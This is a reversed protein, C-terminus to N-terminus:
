GKDHKNKKGHKHHKERYVPVYTHEYWDNDVFYVRRACAGYEHCHKHWHRAHGPPVHLYIPPGTVVHHEVIVPEAYVLAPRPYDGIDIHGYYGPEGISLSVGVDAAWSPVACCAVLSSLLFRKM